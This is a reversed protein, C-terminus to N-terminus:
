NCLLFYALFVKLLNSNKKTTYNLISILKISFKILSHLACSHLGSIIKDHKAAINKTKPIM